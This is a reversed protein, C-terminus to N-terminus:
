PRAIRGLLVLSEFMKKMAESAEPTPALGNLMPTETHAADVIAVFQLLEGVRLLLFRRLGIYDNRPARLFVHGM